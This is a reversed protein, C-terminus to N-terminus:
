KPEANEQFKHIIKRSHKKKKIFKIISENYGRVSSGRFKNLNTFVPVRLIRYEILDIDKSLTFPTSVTLSYRTLLVRVFVCKIKHNWLVQIFFLNDISWIVEFDFKDDPLEQLSIKTTRNLLCDRHRVIPLYKLSDSIQSVVYQIFHFYLLLLLYPKTKSHNFIQM